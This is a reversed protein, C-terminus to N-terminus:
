EEYQSLFSLVKLFYHVFRPISSHIIIFNNKFTNILIASFAVKSYRSYLSLCNSVHFRWITSTFGLILESVSMLCSVFKKLVLLFLLNPTIILWFLNSIFWIFFIYVKCSWKIFIFLTNININDILSSSDSQIGLEIYTLKKYNM